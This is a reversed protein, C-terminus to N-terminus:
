GRRMFARAVGIYGFPAALDWRVFGHFFVKGLECGRGLFGEEVIGGAWFGAGVHTESRGTGAKGVEYV